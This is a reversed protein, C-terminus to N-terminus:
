KWVKLIEIKERKQAEEWKENLYAVNAIWLNTNKDLEGIIVANDKDCSYYYFEGNVMDATGTNVWCKTGNALKIIWYLERSTSSHESTPLKETLNLVFGSGAVEPDIDCVLRNTDIEFCPDHISNGAICRWAKDNASANSITWCSGSKSDKPIYTQLYDIEETKQKTLNTPQSTSSSNPTPKLQFWYFLFLGIIILLLVSLKKSM